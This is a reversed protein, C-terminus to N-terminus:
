HQEALPEMDRGCCCRPKANGECSEPAGKRVEIECGCAPELCRFREGEKFRAM